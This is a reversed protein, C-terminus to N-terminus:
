LVPPHPPEWSSCCSGLAGEPDSHPPTLSPPRTWCPWPATPCGQPCSLACGRVHCQGGRCWPLHELPFLEPAGLGALAKLPSPHDGWHAAVERERGQAETHTWSDLLSPDTRAPSSNSM